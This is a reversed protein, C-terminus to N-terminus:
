PAFPGSALSIRTRQLNTFLLVDMPVAGVNLGGVDDIADGELVPEPWQEEVDTPLDSQLNGGGVKEPQSELFAKRKSEAGGGGRATTRGVLCAGNEGRWGTRTGRGRGRRVGGMRGRGSRRETRGEGGPRGWGQGGGGCRGRDLGEGMRGGFNERNICRLEARRSSAQRGWPPIGQRKSGRGWGSGSASPLRDRAPCM